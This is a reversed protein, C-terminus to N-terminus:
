IMKQNIITNTDTVSISKISKQINAIKKSKPIKKTKLSKKSKSPKQVYFPKSKNNIRPISNVSPLNKKLIYKKNYSHEYPSSNFSLPTLNNNISINNLM